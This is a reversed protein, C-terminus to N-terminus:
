RPDRNNSWVRNGNAAGRNVPYRPFRNNHDQNRQSGDNGGNGRASRWGRTPQLGPARWMLPQLQASYGASGRGGQQVAEGGRGRGGQGHGGHGTVVPIIGPVDNRPRINRTEANPAERPRYFHIM